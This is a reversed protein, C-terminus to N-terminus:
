EAKLWFLVHAYNKLRSAVPVKWVASLPDLFVAAKTARSHGCDEIFISIPAASSPLIRRKWPLTRGSSENLSRYPEAGSLCAIGWVLVKRCVHARRSKSAIGKAPSLSMTHVVKKLGYAARHFMELLDAQCPVVHQRSPVQVLTASFTGCQLLGAHSSTHGRVRASIQCDRIHAQSLPM